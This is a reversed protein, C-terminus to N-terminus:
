NAAHAEGAKQVAQYHDQLNTSFQHSGDGTAVFYYYDHQAPHLAAQIAGMGPMAIPTPPLGKHLYTNYPTDTTLDTKYIKGKYAAGLGYIITPDFQLLMNKHLRNILVGGIIPQEKALYAEKEILSAAILAQYADAYPLNDARHNWAEQLKLNMLDYARKLVTMDADGRTYYYTEPLFLGEPTHTTDGLSAMLDHDSLKTAVQKVYPNNQLNTKIQLYTSGPVIIFARYYRGTGKTLQLWLSYPTSGAHILYEGSKPSKGRALTYLNFLSPLHLLRNDALNAVLAARSMGPYVYVIVGAAPLELPAFLTYAATGLIAIFLLVILKFAQM